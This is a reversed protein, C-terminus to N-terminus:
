ITRLLTLQSQPACVVTQIQELCTWPREMNPEAVLTGVRYKGGHCVRGRKDQLSPNPYIVGLGSKWGIAAVSSGFVDLEYDLITRMRLHRAFYSEIQERCDILGSRTSIVGSLIERGCSLKCGASFRPLPSACEPSCGLAITVPCDGRVSPCGYCCVHHSIYIHPILASHLTRVCSAVM